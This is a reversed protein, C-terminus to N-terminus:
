FYKTIISPFGLCHISFPELAGLYNVLLFVPVLSSHHSKCYTSESPTLSQRLWTIIGPHHTLMLSILFRQKAPHVPTFWSLITQSEPTHRSSSFDDSEWPWILSLEQYILTFFNWIQTSSSKVDWLGAELLHLYRSCVIIPIQAVVLFHFLFPCLVYPKLSLIMLIFPWQVWYEHREM